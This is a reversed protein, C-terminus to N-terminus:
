RGVLPPHLAPGISLPCLRGAARLRVTVDKKQKVTKPLNRHFLQPVFKYRISPDM